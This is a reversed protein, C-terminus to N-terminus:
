IITDLLFIVPCVNVSVSKHTCLIIFILMKKLDSSAINYVPLLKDRITM